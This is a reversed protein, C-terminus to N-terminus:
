LKPGTPLPAQPAGPDAAPASNPGAGPGAGPGPRPGRGMPMGRGNRAAQCAAAPTEAGTLGLRAANGIITASMPDFNSLVVLTWKEAPSWHFEANAGGALGSHGVTMRGNETSLQFGYAYEGPGAGVVTGANSWLLARTKASVLRDAQMAQAFRALDPASSYGGGYAGGSGPTAARRPVKADSHILMAGTLDESRTLMQAADSPRGKLSSHTMGAPRFVHEHVYDAYSQGSAAEIVAGLVLFGTNSYLRKSGPAFAPPEAAVLNMLERTTRASSIKPTNAPNFINGIGSSHSLMQAITIRGLEAGLEPLFRAVPDGLRVKGRDILQGVATTTFIKGVSAINFPTDIVNKMGRAPDAMGYTLGLVRHGQRELLLVGSFEDASAFSDACSRIGASIAQFEASSSTGAERSAAHADAGSVVSAAAVFLSTFRRLRDTVHGGGKYFKAQQSAM